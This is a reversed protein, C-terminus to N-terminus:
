NRRTCARDGYSSSLEGPTACDVFATQEGQPHIPCLTGAFYIYNPFTNISVSRIFYM